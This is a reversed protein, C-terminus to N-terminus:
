ISRFWVVFDTELRLLDLNFMGKVLLDPCKSQLCSEECLM